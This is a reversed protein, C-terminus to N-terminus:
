NASSSYRATYKDTKLARQLGPVDEPVDIALCASDTVMAELTYGNEIVRNMEVGEAQELPGRPLTGFLQLFEATFGMVGLQRYYSRKVDANRQPTPIPERSMYLIQNSTNIVAKVVNYSRPDEVAPDIPQILNTAVCDPNREFPALALQVLTPDLVPEDGQVIVVRDAKVSQAAEVVRDNCDIHTDKTMIIRPCYRGANQRIEEDCTAIYVNDDGVALASRRYVHELTTKGNLDFLVKRPFRTSGLRAPIIVVSKM